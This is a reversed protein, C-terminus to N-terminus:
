VSLVPCSANHLVYNSISGLFLEDMKSKDPQRIVILDAEWNEAMHCIVRGVNGFNQSFEVNVGAAQAKESLSKLMELGRNEEDAWKKQYNSMLEDTVLPYRYLSPNPLAPSTGASLVNLLMLGAQQQKAMDLAREFVVQDTTTDQIPALIKTFM